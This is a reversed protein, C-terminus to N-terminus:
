WRKRPNAVIQGQAPAATWDTVQTLQAQSIQFAQVAEAAANDLTDQNALPRSMTVKGDLYAFAVLQNDRDWILVSDLGPRQAEIVAVCRM